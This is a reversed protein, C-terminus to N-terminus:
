FPVVPTCRCAGCTMATSTLCISYSTCSRHTRSTDFANQLANFDPVGESNMVVVEGDLWASHLNWAELEEALPKMRAIWDHGHRTFLRARGNELRAMVRYGDFKIEYVWEGATPVNRTLTGLQPALREPLPAEVAGPLQALREAASRGSARSPPGGGSGKAKDNKM